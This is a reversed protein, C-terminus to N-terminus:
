QTRQYPQKTINWHRTCLRLQTPRYHLVTTTKQHETWKTTHQTTHSSYKNACNSKVPHDPPSCVSLHTTSRSQLSWQHLSYKIFTNDNSNTGYSFCLLHTKLLKWLKSFTRSTFDINQSTLANDTNTHDLEAIKISSSTYLIIGNTAM